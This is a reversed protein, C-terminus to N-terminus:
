HGLKLREHLQRKRTLEEIKRYNLVFEGECGQTKKLPEHSIETQETYTSKSRRNLKEGLEKERQREKIM